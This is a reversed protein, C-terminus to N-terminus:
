TNVSLFTIEFTGNLSVKRFLLINKNNVNFILFVLLKKVKVRTLNTRTFVSM